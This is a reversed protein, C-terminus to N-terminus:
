SSPFLSRPHLLRVQLLDEEAKTLPMRQPFRAAGDAWWREVVDTIALTLAEHLEELQRQHHSAILLPRACGSAYSGKHWIEAPCLELLRSEHMDQEWRYTATETSDLLAHSAPGLVAHIQELPQKATSKM